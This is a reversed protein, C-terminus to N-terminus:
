LKRFYTPNWYEPISHTSDKLATFTHTKFWLGGPTTDNDAVSINLDECLVADKTTREGLTGISFWGKGEQQVDVEYTTQGSADTVAIIPNAYDYAYFYAMANVPAPDDATDYKGGQERDDIVVAVKEKTKGQTLGAPHTKNLFAIVDEPKHAGALDNTVSFKEGVLLGYNDRIPGFDQWYIDSDTAPAEETGATYNTWDRGYSDTFTTAPADTVGESDVHGTPRRSPDSYLVLLHSDTSRVKMDQVFSVSEGINTYSDANNYKIKLHKDERLYNNYNTKQAESGSSEALEAFKVGEVTRLQFPKSSDVQNLTIDKGNSMVLHVTGSQEMYASKVFDLVKTFKRQIPTGQSDTKTSGDANKEYDNFLITFNGYDDLTVDSIWIIHGLVEDDQTNTFDASLVGDSSLNLTKPWRLSWSYEKPQSTGNENNMTVKFEGTEPNLTVNDIRRLYKAFTQQSLDTYTIVITGDANTQVNNITKYDAIYIQYAQPNQKNDYWYFDYTYVKKGAVSAPTVSGVCYKAAYTASNNFSIRGKSDVIIADETYITAVNSSTLTEVQINRVTDGKIGKPIGLTYHQYFAHTGADDETVTVSKDAAVLNGSSDYPSIEEAEFEHVLYPIQFGVYFWSDAEADDARVNLWTYKIEENYTKTTGDYYMGPVLSSKVQDVKTTSGSQFTRSFSMDGIVDTKKETTVVSGDANLDAWGDLPSKDQPFRIYSTASGSAANDKLTHVTSKPLMQFYPTGGSPGVIQGVYIAGGTTEDDYNLGRRYIKGNDKDNKNPTDLLVHEGYWVDTYGAGGSFASKMADFSDFRAKIVLSNGQKGGYM